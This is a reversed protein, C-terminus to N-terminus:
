FVKMFLTILMRRKFCVNLIYMYLWKATQQNIYVIQWSNNNAVNSYLWCLMLPYQRRSWRETPRNTQRDTQQDTQHITAFHSIPNSAMQPPPNAKSSHPADWQLWHPIQVYNHSLGHLSWAATQSAWQPPGLCQHIPHPECEGLLLSTKPKKQDTPKVPNEYHM